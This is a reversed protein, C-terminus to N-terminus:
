IVGYQTLVRRRWKMSPAYTEIRSRQPPAQGPESRGVLVRDTKKPYTRRMAERLEEWDAAGSGNDFPVPQWNPCACGLWWKKQLCGCPEIRCRGYYHALYRDLEDQPM